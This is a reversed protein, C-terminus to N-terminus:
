PKYLPPRYKKYKNNPHDGIFAYTLTIQIINTVFVVTYVLQLLFIVSDRHSVSVTNRHSVSVTHAVSSVRPFYGGWGKSGIVRLRFCIGKLRM